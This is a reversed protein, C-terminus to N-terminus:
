GARRRNAFECSVGTCARACTLQHELLVVREGEEALGAEAREVHVAVRAQARRRRRRRHALREPAVPLRAAVDVKHTESERARSASRALM